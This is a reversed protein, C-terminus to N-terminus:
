SAGEEILWDIFNRLASTKSADFPVLAVYGTRQVQITSFPRLLRGAALDTQLVPLPGIDPATKTQSVPSLSILQNPKDM